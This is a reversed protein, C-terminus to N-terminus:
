KKPMRQLPGYCLQFIRQSITEALLIVSTATLYGQEFVALTTSGGGLDILAVGLNKEDEHYPM